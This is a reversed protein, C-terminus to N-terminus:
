LLFFIHLCSIVFPPIFMYVYMCIYIYIYIHVKHFLHRSSCPFPQVRQCNHESMHAAEIFSLLCIPCAHDGSEVAEHFHTPTYDSPLARFRVLWSSWTRRLEAQDEALFVCCFGFIAYIHSLFLSLFLYLIIKFLVQIVKVAFLLTTM